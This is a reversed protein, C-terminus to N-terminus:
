PLELRPKIPVQCTRRRTFESLPKQPPIWAIGGCRQCEVVEHQDGDGLVQYLVTDRVEVVGSAAFAEDVHALTVRGLHEREYESVLVNSHSFIQTIGWPIVSQCGVRGSYRLHNSCVVNVYVPVELLM